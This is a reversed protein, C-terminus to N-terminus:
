MNHLDFFNVLSHFTGAGVIIMPVVLVFGCVLWEGRGEFRGTTLLQLIDILTWHYNPRTPCFADKTLCYCCLIREPVFGFNGLTITRITGDKQAKIKLICGHCFYHCCTASQMPLCEGTNKDTARTDNTFSEYCISCERNETLLVAVSLAGEALPDQPTPADILVVRRMIDPHKQDKTSQTCKSLLKFCFVAIIIVTFSVFNALASTPQPIRGLPSFHHYDILEIGRMTLDYVEKLLFKASALGNSAVLVAGRVLSDVGDTTSVVADLLLLKDSALVAYATAGDLGNVMGAVLGAIGSLTSGICGSFCRRGRM